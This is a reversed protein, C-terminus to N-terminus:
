KTYQMEEVAYEKVSHLFDFLSSVVDAAFTDIRYSRDGILIDIHDTAATPSGCNIDQMLAIEALKAQLYLRYHCDDEAAQPLNDFIEKLEKANM